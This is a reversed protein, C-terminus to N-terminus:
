FVSVFGIHVKPNRLVLPEGSRRGVALSINVIGATTEYALGGGLGLPRDSLDPQGIRRDQVLGYDGFGFFYSNQGLLLRYELTLVHYATAFIGEEDFGRLLRNGGVRFQENQYVRAESVIAGSHAALKLTSRELLPLYGELRGEMVFRFSRGPLTDYFSEAVNLIAQNRAIQRTGAGAKAFASCGRRPNFRYDLAQWNAELGFARNRVDLQRPFRGMLIAATDVRLLNSATV